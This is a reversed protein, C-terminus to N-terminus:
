AGMIAKMEAFYQRRAEEDLSSLYNLAAQKPDVPAKRFEQGPRANQVDQLRNKIEAEVMAPETVTNPIAALRGRIIRQVEIQFSRKILKCLTEADALTQIEAFAQEWNVDEKDIDPFDTMITGVRDPRGDKSPSSATIALRDM